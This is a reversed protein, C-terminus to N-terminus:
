IEKHYGLDAKSFSPRAKFIPNQILQPLVTIPFNLSHFNRTKAMLDSRKYIEAKPKLAQLAMSSNAVYNDM